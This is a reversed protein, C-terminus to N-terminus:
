ATKSDLEEFVNRAIKLANITVPFGAYVSLHLLVEVIEDKSCGVKLAGAIHSRLQPEKGLTALCSITSMARVKASIVPNEVYSRSWIDGYVFELLFNGLDPCFRGLDEVINRYEDPRNQLLLEKGKNYRESM